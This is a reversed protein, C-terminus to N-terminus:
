KLLLLPQTDTAHGSQLRCFYVGSPVVQGDDATGRWRLMFEGARRDENLLTRVLEGKVSFIEIRVRGADRIVFRINTAPNFPNPYIGAIRAAALPVPVAAATVISASTTDTDEAGLDDTVTLTVTYLGVSAYTHSPNALDSTGGDGFTWAWTVISGDPDISGAASFDLSVGAEGSYTGNAVATPAQNSPASFSQGTNVAGATHPQATQWTFDGSLSGTGALQLSYGEPVANTPETVGIDVSLMGAAPGDAAIFTGEYSIFEIVSGGNDVLALGDPSGNQMDPYNFSLTGYGNQQNPLTGSLLIADYVLGGNGNYGVVAWEALNTGAAGAVELFEGADYSVNDYHFENIWVTTGGGTNQAPTASAEASNMSENGTLDSATVVYYYTTGNTLGDDTFQSPGVLGGSAISYPGGFVTARYVTYGGLDGEASDNWDLDIRGDGTLAVLGTPAAPPTIDGGSGSFIADVWEPHDVFPNRNGQHDFVADTHAMEKADVPDDQHWQLLVNLLGMYAVLENSGTNSDEILTLSNTLILDPEIVGTVGHAGGEYRVDMYFQARAVDGRRDWWTEWYTTSAWNSWGPYVGSGGGVGDNVATTYEATGTGGVSGYPKNSRSSNRSDNCLFLHHCDSYPYNSSGENPFGFSKPWTHERNYDINGAGWKQYSENLYVDLIRDSNNPDQDALELVNWTDTASDTYPILTHDDIIAHVSQRLAAATSADITDYYGAPADARAPGVAISMLLGITLAVPASLQAISIQRV